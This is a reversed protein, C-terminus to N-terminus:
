GVLWYSNQSATCVGLDFPAFVLRCPPEAFVPVFETKRVAM